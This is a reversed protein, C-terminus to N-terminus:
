SAAETSEEPEESANSPAASEEHRHGPQRHRDQLKEKHKRLQHEMKELLLDVAVLLNEAESSAVFDHKDKASVKLDVKTTEHHELDVTVEMSTIREYYRHLRDLKEKVKEQTAESVHGHRTSIYIPVL